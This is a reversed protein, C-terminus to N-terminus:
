RYLRWNGVASSPTPPVWVAELSVDDLRVNGVTGRTGNLGVTTTSGTASFTTDFEYWIDDQIDHTWFATFDEPHNQYDTAGIVSYVAVAPYYGLKLRVWGHYRYWEGPTTAVQQYIMCSSEEADVTGTMVKQTM